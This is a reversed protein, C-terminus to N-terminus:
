RWAARACRSPSRRSSTTLSATASSSMAATVISISRRALQRRWRRCRCASWRSVGPAQAPHHVTPRAGRLQYRLGRSRGRARGAHRELADPWRSIRAGPRRLSRPGGPSQGAPLGACCSAESTLLFYDARKTPLATAPWGVVEVRKGCARDARPTGLDRWHLRMPMKSPDRWELPRSRRQHCLSARSSDRAGALAQSASLVARGGLSARAELLRPGVGQRGRRPRRGPAVHEVLRICAARPTWRGTARTARGNDRLWVGLRFRARAEAIEANVKPPRRTARRRAASAQRHDGLRTRDDLYAQRAALARGPGRRCHATKLDRRRFTIPRAATEPPRV